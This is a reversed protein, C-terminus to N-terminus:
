HGQESSSKIKQNNSLVDISYLLQIGFADTTFSGKDGEKLKLLVKFFLM